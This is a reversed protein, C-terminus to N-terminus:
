FVHGLAELINHRLAVFDRNDRHRPETLNIVFDDVIQAPRPTFVIIRSALLLAEEVDHTVLLTTLTRSQSLKLFDDQISMRTLSDLKGFPEDLLLIDPNNVLARALTARQAMGGSLQRPYSDSFSLLGVMDLMQDIQGNDIPLNRAEFGLAVNQKITRWPLLYSDQLVILRDPSPGNIRVGDVGIKGGTPTELGSILRLLTSKGCGSPGLLAIIEGQAVEFSVNKLVTLHGSSHEYFHSVNRIQISRGYPSTNQSSLPLTVM